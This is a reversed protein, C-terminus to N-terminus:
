CSEYRKSKRETVTAVVLFLFFLAILAVAKLGTNLFWSAGGFLAAFFYYVLVAMRHSLGADLLRFHLHERGGETIRKGARARKLIVSFVDLLPVGLVLLTTAVKSGAAIALAGILFGTLTSGGEGLFIRAPHFNWVLFGGLVAALALSFVVIQPQNLEPRLALAGILIAAIAAVGSALGDLGDLLKTTYIMGLLWLFSFADAPFLFAFKLDKIGLEYNRIGLDIMGGFPNRIETFHIGGIVAVVAALVPFIIQIKPRLNFKDDLIGGVILIAGGIFLALLHRSHVYGGPLIGKFYLFLVAIFFSVFIAVGGFLPVPLSHSKRGGFTDPTDVFRWRLAVRRVAGTVWVSLLFTLIFIFLLNLISM